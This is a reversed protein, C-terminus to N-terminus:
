VKDSQFREIFQRLLFVEKTKLEDLKEIIKTWFSEQQKINARLLMNILINFDSVLSEFPAIVEQVYYKSSLYQLRLLMMRKHMFFSYFGRIDIIQRTQIIHAVYQKLENYCDLGFVYFESFNYSNTYDSDLLYERMGNLIQNLNIEFIEKSFLPEKVSAEVNKKVEMMYIQKERWFLDKHDEDFDDMSSLSTELDSYLVIDQKCKGTDTNDCMYFHNKDDDYGYIFIKHRIHRQLYFDKYAPVYYGEVDFSLYMNRELCYKLYNIRDMKFLKLDNYPMASFKIWPNAKFYFYKWDGYLNYFFDVTGTRSPHKYLDKLSYVQLFNNYIWPLCEDRAFLMSFLACQHAYGNIPPYVVPLIKKSAM